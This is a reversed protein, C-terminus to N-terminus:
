RLGSPCRRLALEVPRVDAAPRHEAAATKPSAVPEEGEDATVAPEDHLERRRLRRGEDRRTLGGRVRLDYGSRRFPRGLAETVWGPELIGAWSAVVM